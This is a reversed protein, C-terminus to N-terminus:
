PIKSSCLALVDITHPLFLRSGFMANTCQMHCIECTLFLGGRTNFMIKRGDVCILVKTRTVLVVGRLIQSTPIWQMWWGSWFFSSFSDILCSDRSENPSLDFGLLQKIAPVGYDGTDGNLAKLASGKIFPRPCCLKSCPELAVKSTCAAGQSEKSMSSREQIIQHSKNCWITIRLSSVHGFTMKHPWLKETKEVFSDNEAYAPVIFDLLHISPLVMEPVDSHPQVHCLEAM